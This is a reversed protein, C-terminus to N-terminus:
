GLDVLASFPLARIGCRSMTEAHDGVQTLSEGPRGGDQHGDREGHEEDDMEGSIGRREVQPRLAGLRVGLDHPRGESEVPGQGLLVALEEPPRDLAVEASGGAGAASAAREDQLAERRM